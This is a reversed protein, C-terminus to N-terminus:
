TWRFFWSVVFLLRAHAPHAFSTTAIRPGRGSLGAIAPSDLAILNPLARLSRFMRSLVLLTRLLAATRDSRRLIRVEGNM